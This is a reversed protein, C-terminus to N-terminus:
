HHERAEWSPAIINAMPRTEFGGYFRYLDTRMPQNYNYRICQQPDETALCNHLLPDLSTMCKDMGEPTHYNQSCIVKTFYTPVRMSQDLCDEFQEYTDSANSCQEAIFRGANSRNMIEECQNLDDLSRGYKMAVARCLKNNGDMTYKEKRSFGVAFGIIVAFIVATIVTLIIVSKRDM